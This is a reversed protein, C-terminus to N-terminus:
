RLKDLSKILKEDSRIGKYAMLYGAVTAVPLIVWLAPTPKILKNMGLVYLVLIVIAMVLGLICLRMQMKRDKFMFISIFSIAVSAITLILIFFNSAADLEAKQIMTSGQKVMEEGTAFPFWFTLLAAVTALLLWLTQKRQIM